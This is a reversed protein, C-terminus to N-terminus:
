EEMIRHARKMLDLHDKAWQNISEIEGGKDFGFVKTVESLLRAETRDFNKDAYAMTFLELLFSVRSLRRKFVGPLAAVAIDEAKVGPKMQNRLENMVVLEAPDIRGDARMVEDAYHLLCSQQRDNLNQVFM